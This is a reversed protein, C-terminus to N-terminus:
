PGQQHRRFLGPERAECLDSVQSIKTSNVQYKATETLVIGGEKVLECVHANTLVYSKNAGSKLIIGTGGHNMERNTIKVSTKHLPNEPELYRRIHLVTSVGTLVLLVIAFRKLM